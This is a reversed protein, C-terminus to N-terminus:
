NRKLLDEMYIFSVNTDFQRKSHFHWQMTLMYEGSPFPLILLESKLYFDKVIQPGQLLIIIVLNLTSVSKSYSVVYPCTHNINTFEKFINYVIITFPDYRKRMFRCADVTSELIWPKFGNAKKLIKAHLQINNVPHLVTGNMNLLVRDRSVAKLRYNHFVFWSLNYSKCEFNTFKFVVAENLVFRFLLVAGIFSVLNTWM